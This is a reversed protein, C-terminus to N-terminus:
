GPPRNPGFLSRNPVGILPRRGVVEDVVGYELAEQPGLVLDREIDEHIRDVTRGTHEARRSSPELLV